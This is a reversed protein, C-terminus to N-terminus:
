RWRPVQIAPVGRNVQRGEAAGHRTFHLLPWMNVRAV